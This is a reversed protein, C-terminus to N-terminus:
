FVFFPCVVMLSDLIFYFYRRNTKKQKIIGGGNIKQSVFVRRELLIGGLHGLPYYFAVQRTMM